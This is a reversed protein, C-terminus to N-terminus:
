HGVVAVEQHVDVAAVTMTTTGSYGEMISGFTQLDKYYICAM